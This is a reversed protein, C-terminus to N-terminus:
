NFRFYKSEKRLAQRNEFTQPIGLMMCSVDIACDGDCVSGLTVRNLRQYFAQISTGQAPEEFHLFSCALFHRCRDLPFEESVPRMLATGDPLSEFCCCVAEVGCSRDCQGIAWPAFTEVIDVPHSGEWVIPRCHKCLALLIFYSYGVYERPDRIERALKLLAQLVNTKAVVSSMDPLPAQPAHVTLDVVNGSPPAAGLWRLPAGHPPEAPPTPPASVDELPVIAMAEEPIPPAEAVAPEAPAPAPVLLKGVVAPKAPGPAPAPASSFSVEKVVPKDPFEALPQVHMPPGFNGYDSPRWCATCPNNACQHVRIIRNVAIANNTSRLVTAWGTIGRERKTVRTWAHHWDLEYCNNDRLDVGLFPSSLDGVVAAM